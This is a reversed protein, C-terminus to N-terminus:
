DYNIVQKSDVVYAILTPDFYKFVERARFLQDQAKALGKYTSKVEEIGIKGYNYLKLIDIEGNVIPVVSKDCYLMNKVIALIHTGEEDIIQQIRTDIGNDHIRKNGM